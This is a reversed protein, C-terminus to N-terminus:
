IAGQALLGGEVALAAPAGVDSRARAAEIHAEFEPRFKVIMSGIPMAMADGLV